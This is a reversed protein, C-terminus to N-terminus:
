RSVELLRLPSLPKTARTRICLWAKVVFTAVAERAPKGSATIVGVRMKVTVPISVAARMAAVRDAVKAPELMLRAGFSGSSFRDSPCGCNLHVEERYGGVTEGV